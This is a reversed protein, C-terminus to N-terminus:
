EVVKLFGNIFEAIEGKNKAEKILGDINPNKSYSVLEQMDAGRGENEDQHKRVYAVLKRVNSIVSTGKFFTDQGDSNDTVSVNINSTDTFTDTYWEKIEDVTFPCVSLTSVKKGIFQTIDEIRLFENRVLIEVVKFFGICYGRETHTSNRGDFMSFGLKAMLSTIKNSSLNTQAQENFLNKLKIKSVFCDEKSNSFEDLLIYSLKVEWSKEDLVNDRRDFLKSLFNGIREELKPDVCKALAVLPRSVLWQRNSLGYKNKVEALSKILIKYNRLGNLYALNRSLVYGPDKETPVEVNGRPDKKSAKIMYNTISRKELAGKLPKISGIRTFGFPDFEDTQNINKDNQRPVTNGKEYSGNLYEVLENDSSTQKKSDDFLKEAEEICLMAKNHNRYRFFTAPTPKLFKKGNFALNTSIKMGKSKASGSPGEHKIIVIRDILDHFYSLQDFLANLDYWESEEYAMGETYHKKFSEHVNKFTVQDPDKNNVFNRISELEWRNDSLTMISSFEFNIEKPKSYESIIRGDELVLANVKEKISVERKGGKKKIIEFLKAGYYRLKNGNITITGVAQDIQQPVDSDTLIFQDFKDRPILGKQIMKRKAEQLEKPPNRKIREVDKSFDIKKKM